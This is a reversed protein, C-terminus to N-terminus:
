NAFINETSQPIEHGSRKVRAFLEQLKEPSFNEAVGELARDKNQPVLEKAFIEQARYGEGM